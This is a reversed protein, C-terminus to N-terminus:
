EKSRTICTVIEVPTATGGLRNHYNLDEDLVWEEGNLTVRQPLKAGWNRYRELFDEVLVPIAAKVFLRKLHMWYQFFVLVAQPAGAAGYLWITRGDPKQRYFLLEPADPIPPDVASEAMLVARSERLARLLGSNTPDDLFM